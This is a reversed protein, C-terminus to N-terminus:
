GKSSTTGAAKLVNALGRFNSDRERKNVEDAHKQARQLRQRDDTTLKGKVTVM